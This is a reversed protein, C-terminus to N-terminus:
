SAISYLAVFFAIYVFGVIGGVVFIIAPEVIISLWRVTAALQKEHFSATEALVTDLTGTTEGVAVTRGLMPTFLRGRLLPASLTGGSMATERVDAVHRSFALSGLLEQVVALATILTVGSELLMGLARSFAATASVRLINGVVPLRLAFHDLLLRTPPWRRLVYFLAVAVVLGIAVYPMYLQLWNSVSLLAQTLAPLSRHRGALFKQLKPILYLLMYATVALALLLVFAPYILANLLTMKLARSREMQEAARTLVSDLTGSAEGVKVLQIVFNPFRRPHRSLADAFTAGEQIREAVDFWIRSLSRRRSQEAATKIASLLTLGSRLMSAIQQLSLEVDAKRPPMWGFLSWSPGGEAGAGSAGSSSEAGAYVGLVIWGRGRLMSAAVSTSEADLSGSHRTGSRDCAEFKFSAM